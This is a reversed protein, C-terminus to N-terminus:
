GRRRIARRKRVGEANRWIDVIRQEVDVHRNGYGQEVHCADGIEIPVVHLTVVLRPGDALRSKKPHENDCM